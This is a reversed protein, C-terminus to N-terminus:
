WSLHFEVEPVSHVDGGYTTPIWKAKIGAEKVYRVVQRYVNLDSESQRVYTFDSSTCSRKGEKASRKAQELLKTAIQQARKEEYPALNNKSKQKQLNAKTLDKVSTAEDKLKAIFEQENM